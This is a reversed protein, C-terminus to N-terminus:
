ISFAPFVTNHLLTFDSVKEDSFWILKIGLINLELIHYIVFPQLFINYKQLYIQPFKKFM